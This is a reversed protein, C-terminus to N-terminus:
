SFPKILDSILAHADPDTRALRIAGGMESGFSVGEPSGIRAVYRAALLQTAQEVQDPVRPWGWRATIRALRGPWHGLMRVSDYPRRRSLAGVPALEYQSTALVTWSGGFGNGTEVIVGAASGIDDTMLSYIGSERDYHVNGAIDYERATPTQALYFVRHCTGDIRRSAARLARQLEASRHAIMEPVTTLSGKFSEQDLYLPEAPDGVVFSWYRRDAPVTGDVKIYGYWEGAVDVAEFEALYVGPDSVLSFTPEPDIATGDGKFATEFVVTANVRDGDYDRVVIQVPVDDGLDWEAGSM